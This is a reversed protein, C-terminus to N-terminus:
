RNGGGMGGQARCRVGRWIATVWELINYPGVSSINGGETSHVVSSINGGETSHVVSSINGGETSDLRQKGNKRTLSTKRAGRNLCEKMRLEEEKRGREMEEKRAERAMRNWWLNLYNLQYWNNKKRPVSKTKITKVASKMKRKATNKIKVAGRAQGKKKKFTFNTVKYCCSFIIDLFV